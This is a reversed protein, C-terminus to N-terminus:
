WQRHDHRVKRTGGHGGGARKGAHTTGTGYLGPGAAHLQEDVLVNVRARVQRRDCRYAAAQRGPIPQRDRHLWGRVNACELARQCHCQGPPGRRGGSAMETVRVPREIVALSPTIMLLSYTSLYYSTYTCLSLAAQLPFIRAFNHSPEKQCIITKKNRESRRRLFLALKRSQKYM